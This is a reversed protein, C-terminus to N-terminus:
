ETFELDKNKGLIENKMFIASEHLDGEPYEDLVQNFIELAQDKENLEEALIFGKMFLAKYDDKQNKYYKFIQDYYYIADRFRRKKQSNEAKDFYEEASLKMILKDPYLALHYFEKLEEKMADFRERQEKKMKTRKVTDKEEDFSKAIAPNDAVIRFFVYEDNKNQFITSIKNAKTKWVMDSYAQDEGLGPIIGNEYIKPLYGDKNKSFQAALNDILTKDGKAKKVLKHLRKAEEEDDFVFEQINRYALSSFTKKNDKYYKKLAKDSLDIKEVVLKNYATRLMLSREIQEFIEKRKADNQYGEKRAEYAYMKSELTSNIFKELDEIGKIGARGKSKQDGYALVFDMVTMKLEPTNASVIFEPEISKNAQLDEYNIKSIIDEQLQIEYANKLSDITNELILKEKEPRLYREITGSAEELTSGKFKDENEMFYAKKEDETFTLNQSLINKRYDQALLMDKQQQVRKQYTEDQDIDMSLAKKYFLEEVWMQDLLEIKGEENQYKYQYMPPIKSLKDNLMARTIKGGDYEALIDYNSSKCFLFNPLLFLSVLLVLNWWKKSYM